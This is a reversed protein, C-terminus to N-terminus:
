TRNRFQLLVSTIEKDPNARLTNITSDTITNVESSDINIVPYTKETSKEEAHAHHEHDHSALSDHEHVKWVTQPTCMILQDLVTGTSQLIGKVVFSSGHDHALDPNDM